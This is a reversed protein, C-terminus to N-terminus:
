SRSPRREELVERYAALTREVLRERSFERRVREEGREGMSRRREPDDLLEAAARALAASDRPPVVLGTEGEVVIERAGGVDTTVVARRCAMAEKLVGSSADCDVSPLALLDLAEIVDPVDERFGLFHVRAEVGREAARKRLAPEADGEGALLLHLRPRTGALRAVADILFEQGKDPVLRGVTGLVEADEPLGAEKRVKSGDRVGEFAEFRISSHIVPVRAPDLLGRKVFPEYRELVGGSVVILRDLARGILYRNILSDKVRKTNHRTLLHPLRPGGVFRNALVVTWTDQSGHSHVLDPRYRDLLRRLRRADSLLSVVHKVKRLRLEGFVTLGLARAREAALGEGPFAVAVEHGRERLGEALMLIRNPQGGWGRHFDM